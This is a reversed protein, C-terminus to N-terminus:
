LLAALRALAGSAPLADIAAAIQDRREEDYVRGTLGDFKVRLQVASLPMAPDGRPNDAEARLEGHTRSTVRV